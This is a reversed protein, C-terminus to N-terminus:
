PTTRPRVDLLRYGSRSGLRATDFGEATLWRQLSDSGLNKQVVLVARGTPALRDLWKLLMTHLETKGVKIPPNSWILDFRVSDDVDDPASVELNTIELHRANDATLQRARENVDIAIVRAEPRRRSLALAIPGAGCGLDLFVGDRPPEPADTLLFKTGTDLRGHSFVGRDSRFDFADDPLVVTVRRPDSPTAPSHDFYHSM